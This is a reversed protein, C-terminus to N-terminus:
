LMTNIAPAHSAYTGNSDKDHTKANQQHIKPENGKSLMFLSFFVFFFFLVLCLLSPYIYVHMYM